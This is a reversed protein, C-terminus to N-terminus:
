KMFVHLDMIYNECTNNTNSIDFAKVGEMARASQLVLVDSSSAGVSYLGGGTEAGAALVEESLKEGDRVPDVPDLASGALSAGEM